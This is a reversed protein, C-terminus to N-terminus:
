EKPMAQLLSYQFNDLFVVHCRPCVVALVTAAGAKEERTAGPRVLLMGVGDDPGLAEGCCPCVNGANAEATLCNRCLVGDGYPVAKGEIPKGCKTCNM